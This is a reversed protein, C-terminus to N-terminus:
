RKCGTVISWYGFTSKIEIDVFGVEKLMASLEFGSYQRGGDCSLLMVLSYAAAIFNSKQENYLMEHIIIRGGPELTDFSKQVLFACKEPSWDHFIDAYFHIDATPFPQESWMDIVQTKIRDQLEYREVFEQAIVCVTPRELIVAQLNPWKLIAGIAHAGSGGGIDLMVKYKSLEIHEPWVMAPAMSHSHMAYTFRRTLDTEHEHTMFLQQEGYLQSSNTVIANYLSNFSYIHDTGILMDLLWGFYTSSSELLYNKALSSLSYLGNDVILIDSSVLVALLAEAPRTNIELKECVQSLTRAKEALFPFLKLKHAVLLSRYRFSELYIDWLRQEDVQVVKEM